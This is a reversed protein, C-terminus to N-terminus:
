KASTSSWSFFTDIKIPIRKDNRFKKERWVDVNKIRGKASFINGVLLDKEKDSWKLSHQDCLSAPLTALNKKTCSVLVPFFQVL